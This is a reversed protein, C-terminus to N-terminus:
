VHKPHGIELIVKTGGGKESRVSLSGGCLEARKYLNLMGTGKLPSGTDFGIGNDEISLHFFTDEYSLNIKILTASAHKFINHICEQLMRFVMLEKTSEMAYRNSSIELEINVKKIKRVWDVEKEISAILGERKLYEPHLSHTMNHSVVIMNDIMDAASQIYDRNEHVAHDNIKHLFMRSMCLMQTFNDHVEMAMMCMTSEKEENLAHLYDTEQKSQKNKLAVLLVAMGMILVMIFFVMAIIVSITIHPYDDM